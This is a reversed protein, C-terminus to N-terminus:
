RFGSIVPFELIFRHFLPWLVALLIVVVTDRTPSLRRWRLLAATAATAGLPALLRAWLPWPLSGPWLVGFLQLPHPVWALLWNGLALLALLLWDGRAAPLRWHGAIVTLLIVLLTTGALGGGVGVVAQGAAIAANFLGSVLPSRPDLGLRVTVPPLAPHLTDRWRLEGAGQARQTWFVAVGPAATLVQPQRNGGSRQNASILRPPTLTQGNGLSAATYFITPELTRQESWALHLTEGAVTGTLDFLPESQLVTQPPGWDGGPPRRFLLAKEINQGLSTSPARQGALLLLGGDPAALLQLSRLALAGPDLGTPEGEVRGAGDLRLYAVYDQRQRGLNDARLYTVDVGGARALARPMHGAEPLERSEVLAGARLRGTRLRWGGPQEFGAWILLADGGPLAALAPRDLEQGPVAARWVPGVARGAADLRVYGLRHQGQNLEQWAVHYGGDPAPVAVPNLPMGQLATAGTPEPGSLTGAAAAYRWRQLAPQDPLTTFLVAGQSDPVLAPPSSTLIPGGAGPASWGAPYEDLAAPPRPAALAGSALHIALLLLAMGILLSFFQVVPGSFIGILRRM